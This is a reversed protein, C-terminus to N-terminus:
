PLPVCHYSPTCLILVNPGFVGLSSSAALSVAATASTGRPPFLPPPSVAHLFLFTLWNITRSTNCSHIAAVETTSTTTLLVTHVTYMYPNLIQLNLSFVKGFRYKMCYNRESFIELYM